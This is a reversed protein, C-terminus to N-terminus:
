WGSLWFSSQYLSHTSIVASSDDLFFFKDSFLIHLDGLWFMKWVPTIGHYIDLDQAKCVQHEVHISPDCGQSQKWHEAVGM